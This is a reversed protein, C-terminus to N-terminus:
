TGDLQRQLLVDLFPLKADSEKERTFKIGPLTANLINHLHELQVKRVIVFADDVYRLWLKPNALPFAIAELRQM